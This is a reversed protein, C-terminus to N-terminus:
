TQRESAGSRCGTRREDGGGLRLRGRRAGSVDVNVDGDTSRLTRVDAGVDGRGTRPGRAGGVGCRMAGCRVAGCYQVAGCRLSRQARREAGTRQEGFRTMKREWACGGSM